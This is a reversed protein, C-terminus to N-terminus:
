ATVVASASGAETLVQALTEDVQIRILGTGGQEFEIYAGDADANNWIYVIRNADLTINKVWTEDNYGRTLASLNLRRRLFETDVGAEITDEFKGRLQEMTLSTVYKVARKKMNSYEAYWFVTDDGDKYFDVIKETNLGYTREYTLDNKKTVAVEILAM